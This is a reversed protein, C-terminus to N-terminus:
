IRGPSGPPQLSCTVSVFAQARPGRGMLGLERPLLLHWRHTRAGRSSDAKWSQATAWCTGRLFALETRSVARFVGSSPQQESGLSRRGPTGQSGRGRRSNRHSRSRVTTRNWCQGPKSLTTAGLKWGKEPKKKM